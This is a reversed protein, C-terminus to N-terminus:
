GTAKVKNKLSAAKTFFLLFLGIFLLLLFSMLGLIIRLKMAHETAVTVTLVSTTQVNAGGSVSGGSDTSGTSASLDKVERIVVSVNAVAIKEISGAVLRTTDRRLLQKWQSKKKGSRFQGVSVMLLVSATPKAQKQDPTKLIQDKPIVIHVRADLVGHIKKLTKHLEGSLAMLYKAKEEAATPIMGSKGYVESFGKVKRPPLNNKQLLKIARVVDSKGTMITWTINRGEGSQLKSAQIGGRSLLVIIKNAQHETLGHQVETTCGWLPCVFLLFLFGLIGHRQKPKM